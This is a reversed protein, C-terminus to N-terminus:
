SPPCAMVRLCAASISYRSYSFSYCLRGDKACNDNKIRYELEIGPQKCAYAFQTYTDKEDSPVGKKTNM